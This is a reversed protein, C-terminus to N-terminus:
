TVPSRRYVLGPSVVSEDDALDALEIPGAPVARVFEWSEGQEDVYWAHIPRDYYRGIAPGKLTSM